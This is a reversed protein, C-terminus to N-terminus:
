SHSRADAARSKKAPQAVTQMSHNALAMTKKSALQATDIVHTGMELASKFATLMVASSPPADSPIQALSATLTACGEAIKKQVSSLLASQEEQGLSYAKLGFNVLAQTSASWHEVTRQLAETDDKAQFIEHCRAQTQTMLESNEQVSLDILKKLFEVSVNTYLAGADTLLNFQPLLQDKMDSEKFSPCPGIISRALCQSLVSHAKKDALGANTPECITM